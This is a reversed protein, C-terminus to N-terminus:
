VNLSMIYVIIARPVYKQPCIIILMFGVKFVLEYEYM